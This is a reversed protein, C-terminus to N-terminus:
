LITIVVTEATTLINAIATFLRTWSRLPSSSHISITILVYIGNEKRPATRYLSTIIWNLCPTMWGPPKSISMLDAPILKNPGHMLYLLYLYYMLYLLYLYFVFRIIFMIICNRNIVFRFRSLPASLKRFCTCASLKCFCTCASIMSINSCLIMEFSRWFM